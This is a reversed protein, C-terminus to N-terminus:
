SKFIILAKSETFGVTAWRAWIGRLRLLGCKGNFKSSSEDELLAIKGCIWSDCVIYM